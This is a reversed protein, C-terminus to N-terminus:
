QEVWVSVSRENCPFDGFGDAGTTIAGGIAGTLDTFSANARGANMRKAGGGADSMVVALARPHDTDGGRTWGVLNGDDFYDTQPGYAADRRAALLADLVVRQSPRGPVPYYDGYFVCPYGQERLLIIAHALPKFWDQITRETEERFTDHNDVFTVAQV